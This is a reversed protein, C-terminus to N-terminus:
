VLADGFLKSKNLSWASQRMAEYRAMNQANLVSDRQTSFGKAIAYEVIAPQWIDPFDFTDGVSSMDTPTRYYFVNLASTGTATPPIVEIYLKGAFEYWGTQGTPTGSSAGYEFAAEHSFTPSLPVGNFEVKFIAVPNTLSTSLLFSFSSNDTNITDTDQLAGTTACFETAGRNIYRLLVAEDFSLDTADQLEDRIKAIVDSGTAM